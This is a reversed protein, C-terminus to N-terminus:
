TPKNFGRVDCLMNGVKKFKEMVVDMTSEQKECITLADYGIESYQSGCDAVRLYVFDERDKNCFFRVSLM